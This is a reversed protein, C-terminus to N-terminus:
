KDIDVKLFFCLCKLNFNAFYFVTFLLKLIVQDVKNDTISLVKLKPFLSSMMPHEVESFCIRSLGVNNAYLTELEKLGGFKKLDEWDDLRNAELDLIRLKRMLDADVRDVRRIGNFCVKLEVLNPFHRLVREVDPWSYDMRNLILHEINAYVNKEDFAFKSTEEPLGLLNNSVNLLKLGKLQDLILFIQSWSSFLNGEIDLEKMYPFTSKLLDVQHCTSIRSYALVVCSIMIEKDNVNFNNYLVSQDNGNEIEEQQLYKANVALQIDIGFDVKAPRVFSGGTPYKTAFYRTGKFSGDHKGRTPDKWEVGYWTETNDKLEHVPGIYRITGIDSDCQVLMGVSAEKAVASDM